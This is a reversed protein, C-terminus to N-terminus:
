KGEIIRIGAAKARAIMDRTGSGGPFAVVLDPQLLLMAANRKPGAARGSTGWLAPVTACHTSNDDCWQRVIEDAGRSGGQIVIIESRFLGALATKLVRDVMVRDKFDRGGCALLRM